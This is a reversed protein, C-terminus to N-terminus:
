FSKTRVTYLGPACSACPRTALAQKASATGYLAFDLWVGSIEAVEKLIAPTTSLTVHDASSRQAIFGPYGAGLLDIDRNANARALDEPGGVVFGVPVKVKEMIARSTAIPAGPFASSGSLVFVAKVRADTGALQLSTIGGCSNGSAVVRGLDLKGALPGSANQATAWDIAKAQDQATSQLLPNQGPGANITIVVHGALAWHNFITEWTFDSRYCGGNAWTIVPLTRGAADLNTPRYVNSGALGDAVSKTVGTPTTVTTTTTTTRPPWGTGRCGVPALLALGVVAAGVASRMRNRTMEM